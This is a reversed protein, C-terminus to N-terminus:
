YDRDDSWFMNGDEDGVCRDGYIEVAAIYEEITLADCFERESVLFQQLRKIIGEVYVRQAEQLTAYVVPLGKGNREFPVLGEGVRQILLSYGFRSPLTIDQTLATFNNWKPVSIM